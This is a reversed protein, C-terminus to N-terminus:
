GETGKALALADETDVGLYRVTSEIKTVLLRSVQAGHRNQEAM